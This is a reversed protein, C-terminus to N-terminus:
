YGFFRKIRDSLREKPKDDIFGPIVPFGTCQCEAEQGPFISRGNFKIGRRVSYYRGNLSTHNCRAGHWDASRWVALTIGLKLQRAQNLQSSAKNAFERSLNGASKKNIGLTEQFYTSLSGLDRGATVVAKATEGKPDNANLTLWESELHSITSEDTCGASVLHERIKTAM